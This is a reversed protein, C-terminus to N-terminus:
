PTKKRYRYPVLRPDEEPWGNPVFIWSRDRLTLRGRANRSVRDLAQKVRESPLETGSTMNAIEDLLGQFAILWMTMGFVQADRAELELAMDVMEKEHKELTEMRKNYEALAGDAKKAASEPDYTQLAAAMFRSWISAQQSM